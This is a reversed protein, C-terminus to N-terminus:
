CWVSAVELQFPAMDLYHVLRPRRGLNPSAGHPLAQHWIILDGARGGVPVAGLAHLDEQRPDTGAPLSALWDPLRHHFGPVLTLAGQEPPTDELYLIGQTAFPVPLHLSVDWHLGPGPFPRGTRVPVNFGCRDTSMWLDASGWLQAFAKHIRSSAHIRDLSPHRFLQVMIGNTSARYWSEPDEPSAGLHDWLARAAAEIQEAPAAQPLVVFGQAQWHALGERDLVPPMAEIARFEAATAEPVPASRVAANFRAVRVPDPAGGQDLIWDRFAERDPGASFLFQLTPEWGLGLAHVLLKDLHGEVDAPAGRRQAQTRAWFRHLHCVGLLSDDSSAPLAPM